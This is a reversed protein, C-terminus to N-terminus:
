RSKYIYKKTGYYSLQEIITSIESVDKDFDNKVWFNIIGLAGNFIFASAYEIDEESLNPLDQEWRKKCKEYAINLIDNLFYLNNNTNFLIRVLEKNSIVVNLLEKSFTSVSTIDKNQSAIKLEELFDKQIKDLLDYVDLYYRYFTARNIDSIRCIESVTIKKIEKEELLSLFTTKIINKTYKTRRDM